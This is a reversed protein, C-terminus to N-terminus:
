VVSKRDVEEKCWPRESHLLGHSYARAIVDFMFNLSSTSGVFVESAKCDLVDAWYAKACALGSLEGYNRTDVGDVICDEATLVTQLIDSVADLQMKSPKGRAMNLKLNMGKCDDFHKKVKQYEQELAERNMNIYEM